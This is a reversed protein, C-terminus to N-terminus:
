KKISLVKAANIIDKYVMKNMKHRGEKEWLKDSTIVISPNLKLLLNFGSIKGWLVHFFNYLRM